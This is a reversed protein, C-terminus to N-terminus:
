PMLLISGTTKRNELDKHAQVAEKLRYRAGIKISIKNERVMKFVQEASNILKERNSNYSFLTPRTVYPSGKTALM